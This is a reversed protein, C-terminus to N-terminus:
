EVNNAYLKSASTAPISKAGTVNGGFHNNCILFRDCSAGAILGYGQQGTGQPTRGSHCGIVSWDTAGSAINIGHYTASSAQSNLGLFSDSITVQTPGSQVLVGDLWNGVIRTGTGLVVEGEYDTDILVGRGQLSSGFWGAKIYVGEGKSLEVGNGFTHDTELNLSNFWLPRSAKAAANETDRMVFGRNGNILSSNDISVSYARSDHICWDLGANCVFAWQATGDTVRGSFADAAGTGPIANPGTGTGSSTGSTTCQWISGNNSIIQGATYATSIAWTRVTGYTVPYPNDCDIQNITVGTVLNSSSNGYILTGVTGHMYRMLIRELKVNAAHDIWIGNWHYDIRVDRILPQFAGGTIKIAYGSTRRVASTIYCDRIGMHGSTTFEICDGTANNFSLTTGGGLSGQGQLVVSNGNIATLANLQITGRPLIVPCQASVAAAVAANLNTTNTAASNGTAVGYAAAYVAGDSIFNGSADTVVNGAGYATSALLGTDGITAASNQVFRGTTGDWRVIANDTPTGNMGVFKTGVGGAGAAIDLNWGRFVGGVEFIRLQDGLIDSQVAGALTTGSAPRAYYYIGGSSGSSFTSSFASAVVDGPTNIAGTDNVSALSSQIVKGTALDFRAIRNDVASAPGVVDGLDAARATIFITATGSLNIKSTGATGSIKSATVTDRSFTTGSSTYTGIGIEFNSGDEICYSYVTANAAGAEAFSLFESVASGLTITGTGTTTTSMRARNLLAAM